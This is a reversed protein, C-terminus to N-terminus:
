RFPQVHPETLETLRFGLVTPGHRSLLLVGRDGLGM